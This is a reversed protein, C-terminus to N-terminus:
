SKMSPRDSGSPSVRRETISQPTRIGAVVDEGQANVLFEGHAGKRRDVPQPYFAVGTASLNGLNGFVKAQINIAIAGAKPINHSHRYTVARASM